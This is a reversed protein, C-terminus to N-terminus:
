CVPGNARATGFARVDDIWLTLMDSEMWGDQGLDRSPGREAPRAAM